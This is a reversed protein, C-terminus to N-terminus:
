VPEAQYVNVTVGELEVPAIDTMIQDPVIASKAPFGLKSLEFVSDKVTALVSVVGGITVIVDCVPLWITLPKGVSVPATVSVPQTDLTRTSPKGAVKQDPVQDFVSKLRTSPEFVILTTAVSKAPFVPEAEM